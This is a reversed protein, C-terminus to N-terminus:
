QLQLQIITDMEEQRIGDLYIFLGEPQQKFRVSKNEAFLNAKM